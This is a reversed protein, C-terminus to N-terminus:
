RWTMILEHHMSDDAVSATLRELPSGGLDGNQEEFYLTM